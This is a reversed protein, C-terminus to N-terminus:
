QTVVSSSNSLRSIRLSNGVVLLSSLSMGVAAAYPPVLGAAALPLALLNYLIAWTINQRIIKNTLEACSFAKGLSLLDNNLLVSDARTQALDTAGGMAVSVDAGSLVPVDNIGDGVMMIVEGQQQLQQIYELKDQPEMNAHSATLKLQESVRRVETGNDGSLLEVHLGLRKLQEVMVVSEPRLSDIIKVWMLAVDDESLLLWKGDETPAQDAFQPATQNTTVDGIAFSPKGLKYVKGDIMGQVGMGIAQNVSAVQLQSSYPLFAKALPHSSGAELAACFMLYLKEDAPSLPSLNRGLVKEIEPKGKTLTGTKDFMVRTIKPLVELVHSKTVLLGHSRLWGISTTLATPMALSLACPCTVVLVSLTVWFAKASDIQWWAVAVVISVILVTLVFYGSLRDATAVQQPKEQQAKEVLTEIASLRTKQGVATARVTIPNSGNISGAIVFDGPQKDVDNTEGTLLAESVGSCGDLILGDCPFTDGAAVLLQDGAQILKRSVSKWQQAAEDFVQATIPLLQTMRSSDIGNRHRARMELYRGLLLFFTFMSVSEFYVEGSGTLTAWVSALYAGGIALSVPVDMILHRTKLASIAARFFPRASFLVVPTAMILSLWRFFRTWSEDAGTYLVVAVMTIQMMGFGAVGLRMLIQRSERQHLELQRDATAPIPKYGIGHMRTMIESLSVTDPNWNILCRHTSANVRVSLIGGLTGMYQEILWVCAACTIGELLLSVQKESRSIEAVFESQVSADDFALYAQSELNPRENSETRFQYYRGLGGADIASAVAQCGPCCFQQAQGDISLTFDSRPPVPLRCHFCDSM